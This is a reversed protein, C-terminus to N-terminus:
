GAKDIAVIDREIAGCLETVYNLFSRGFEMRYLNASPRSLIIEVKSFLTRTVKGVPFAEETLDLPAQAMIIEVARKGTIELGCFRHSVDVAAGGTVVGAACIAVMKAATAENDSTIYLEDPGLWSVHEGGKVTQRLMKPPVELGLEATVKKFVAMPEGRGGRLVMRASPAVASVVIGISKAGDHIAASVALTDNLDFGDPLAPLLKYM